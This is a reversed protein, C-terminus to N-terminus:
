ENVKFDFVTKRAKRLARQYIGDSDSERMYIKALHDVLKKLRSATREGSVTLYEIALNEIYM